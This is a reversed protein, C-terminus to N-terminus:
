SCPLCFAQKHESSSSIWNKVETHLCFLLYSYSGVSRSESYKDTGTPSTLLPIWEGGIFTDIYMTIYHKNAPAYKSPPLQTTEDGVLHAEEELEHAAAESPSEHKAEEVAGAVVGSDFSNQAPSYEKIM